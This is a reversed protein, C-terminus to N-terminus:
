GLRADVMDTAMMMMAAEDGRRRTAEDRRMTAGLNAGAGGQRM